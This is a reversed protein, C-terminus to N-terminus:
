GVFGLIQDFLQQLHGTKYAIFLGIGIVAWKLLSKNFGSDEVASYLDSILKKTYVINLITSDIRLSIAKVKGKLNEIGKEDLSAIDDATYGLSDLIEADIDMDRVMLPIMYKHHFLITPINNEYGLIYNQIKDLNFTKGMLAFNNFRDPKVMKTKIHNNDMMIKIRVYGRSGRVKDLWAMFNSKYTVLWYLAMIVLSPLIIYNFISGIYPEVNNYTTVVNEAIGDYIVRISDDM